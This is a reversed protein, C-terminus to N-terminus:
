WDAAVEVHPAVVEDEWYRTQQQTAEPSFACVTQGVCVDSQPAPVQHSEVFFAHMRQPAPFNPVAVSFVESAFAHVLSQGAPFNPVIAPLVDSVFAHPVAHPVAVAAPLYAVAVPWVEEAVAQM